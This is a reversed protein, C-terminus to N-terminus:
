VEPGRRPRAPAPPTPGRRHPAPPAPNPPPTNPPPNEGGRHAASGNDDDSSGCGAAFLAVAGLIPILKHMSHFSTREPSVKGPLYSGPAVQLWSKVGLYRPPKQM